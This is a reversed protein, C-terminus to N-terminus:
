DLDFEESWWVKCQGSRIVAHGLLHEEGCDFFNTGEERKRKLAIRLQELMIPGQPTESRTTEYAEACATQVAVAVHNYREIAPREDYKMAWQRQLFQASAEWDQAASVTTASLGGATMKTAALSLDSPITKPDIPESAALSAHTALEDHLITLVLSKTLKKREIVGDHDVAKPDDDFAVYLRAVGESALSSALYAKYALARAALELDAYTAAEYKVDAKAVAERLEQHIGELKPLSDDVQVKQLVKLVDARQAKDARDRGKNFKTVVSNIFTSLRSDMENPADGKAERAKETVYYLSSKNDARFFQHNTVITYREFNDGFAREHSIFKSLASTIEDDGSKFPSGGPQQTKVQVAHFRGNTMNILIDDHHEAFVDEVSSDRRLMSLAVIATYTAQYRYRRFVDAGPDDRGLVYEPSEDRM